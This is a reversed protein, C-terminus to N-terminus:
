PLGGADPAPDAGERSSAQGHAVGLNYVARNAANFANDGLYSTNWTKALEDDGVVPPPTSSDSIEPYNRAQAELQEIRAQLELLRFDTIHQWQEPTAKYTDTM